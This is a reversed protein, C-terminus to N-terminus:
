KAKCDSLKAMAKMELASINGAAYTREKKITGNFRTKPSVSLLEGSPTRPDIARQTLCYLSEMANLAQSPTTMQFNFFNEFSLRLVKVLSADVKRNVSPAPIAPGSATTDMLTMTAAQAVMGDM